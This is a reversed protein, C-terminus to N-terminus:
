VRMETPGKQQYVLEVTKVGRISRALKRLKGILKIALLQDAYLGSSSFAEHVGFHLLTLRSESIRAYIMVGALVEQNEEAISAIAYLTQVESLGGVSFRLRDGDRMLEPLGYLDISNIIGGTVQQQNLNFFM